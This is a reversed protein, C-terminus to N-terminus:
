PSYGLKRRIIISIRIVAVSDALRSCVAALSFLSVYLFRNLSARGEAVVNVWVSVSMANVPFVGYGRDDIHVIDTHWDLIDTWQEGAHQRGVYM